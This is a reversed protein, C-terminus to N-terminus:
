LPVHLPVVDCPLGNLKTMVLLKTVDTANPKVMVPEPPHVSSSAVVCVGIGGAGTLPFWISIPRRIPGGM